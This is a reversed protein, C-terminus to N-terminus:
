GMGWVVQLGWEGVWGGELRGVKTGEWGGVCRGVQRGAWRDAQRGAQM